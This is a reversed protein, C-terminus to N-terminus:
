GSKGFGPLRVNNNVNVSSPIDSTFNNEKNGIGKGKNIEKNIGENLIHM